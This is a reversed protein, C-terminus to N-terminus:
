WRRGARAARGNAPRRAAAVRGRSPSGAGAVRRDLTTGRGLAAVLVDGLAAARNAGAGAALDAVHMVGLAAHVGMVIHAAAASDRHLAMVAAANNGLPAAPSVHLTAITVMATIIAPPRAEVM